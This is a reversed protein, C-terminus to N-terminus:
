EAQWKTGNVLLSKVQAHGNKTVSLVVSLKNDRVLTALDQANKESAYFREVGAEFMNYNCAGQIMVACNQPATYSFTKTDVCIFGEQNVVTANKCINTTGYDIRYALYNGSLLDRPDFAYIPFTVERGTRLDYENKIVLGLLCIIPFILSLAVIFKKNQM